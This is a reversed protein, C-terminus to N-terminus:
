WCDPLVLDTVYTYGPGEETVTTPYPLKELQVFSSIQALYDAMMDALEDQLNRHIDENALVYYCIFDLTRATSVHWSWATSSGRQKSARSSTWFQALWHESFLYSFTEIRNQYRQIQPGECDRYASEGDLNMLIFYYWSRIDNRIKYDIFNKSRPNIWVIISEPVM